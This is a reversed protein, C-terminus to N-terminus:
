PRRRLYSAADLFSSQFFRVLSRVDAQIMDIILFPRYRGTYYRREFKFLVRVFAIAIAAIAAGSLADVAFHQLTYVTSVFNLLAWPVLFIGLPWWLAAGFYALIIGWAAHMSPFSTIAFSANKPDSWNGQLASLFITLTSGLKADPVISEQIASPAAVGLINQRYMEDPSIAPWAYWLPMGLIVAFFMSLVFKRFLDRNGALLVLFVVSLVLGLSQYTAVLLRDLSFFGTLKQLWFPVYVGFLARDWEMLLNSATEVRGASVGSLQNTIVINSFAALGIGLIVYAFSLAAPGAHLPASPIGRMAATIRRVLYLYMKTVAYIYVFLFANVLFSGGFFAYFVFGKLFTKDLNAAVAPNLVAFAAGLALPFIFFAYTEIPQRKLFTVISMAPASPSLQVGM